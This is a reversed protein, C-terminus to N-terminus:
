CEAFIAESIAETDHRHGKRQRAELSQSPHRAQGNGLNRGRCHHLVNSGAAAGKEFYRLIM